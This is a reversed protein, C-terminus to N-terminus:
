LVLAAILSLLVLLALNVATFVALFKGTRAGESRAYLKLGILSALSAIPTGLGGVNVGLLLARANDTFGSLLLAAPVNSIVQSTLLGTLYERGTLLAKLLRDVAQIRALNGAFIFFAVFTLLLMFDAKLLTGRDFLLVAAVVGALMIPWALVRLVTTLCLCFLAAYVALARKDVQPSGGLQPRIADGSLTMCCGGILVLSAAWVPGTAGFFDAASMDYYSYLYLNQPNGVPTLMSGLNAAVTQLVVVSILDQRRDAMTLVVVAFPVFTLLAVDNTILMSSFFCLGVLMLGIARMSGARGCLGHALATFANAKGLGAVVTMLAYLLALTRFDIYDLYAGDPPVLFCSVAAAVAAITLVPERRVFARIHEM